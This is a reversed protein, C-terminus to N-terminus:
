SMDEVIVYTCSLRAAAAVASHISFDERPAGYYHVSFESCWAMLQACDSDWNEGVIGLADEVECVTLVTVGGEVQIDPNPTFNSPHTGSSEGNDHALIFNLAWVERTRQTEPLAHPKGDAGVLGGQALQEAHTDIANVLASAFTLPDRDMFEQLRTKLERTLTQNKM